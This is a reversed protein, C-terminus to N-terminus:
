VWTTTFVDKRSKIQVQMYNSIDRLNHEHEIHSELFWSEVKRQLLTTLCILKINLLMINSTMYQLQFYWESRTYVMKLTSGLYQGAYTKYFIKFFM